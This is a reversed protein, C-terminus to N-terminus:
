QNLHPRGFKRSLNAELCLGGMETEWTALIVTMLRAGFKVGM